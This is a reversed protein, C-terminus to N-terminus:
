TEMVCPRRPDNPAYCYQGPYNPEAWNIEPHQQHRQRLKQIEPDKRIEEAMVPIPAQALNKEQMIRNMLNKQRKLSEPTKVQQLFEDADQKTKFDVLIVRTLDGIRVPKGEFDIIVTDKASYNPYARAVKQAGPSTLLYQLSPSDFEVKDIAAESKSDPFRILDSSSLRVIVQSSDEVGAAVNFPSIMILAPISVLSLIMKRM